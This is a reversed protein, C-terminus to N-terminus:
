EPLLGRRRMEDRVDDRRLRLERATSDEGGGGLWQNTRVGYGSSGGWSGFGFGIGVDGGASRTSNVLEDSLRQEYAVLQTNTMRLYDQELLTTTESPATSMCGTLAIVCLLLAFKCLFDTKHNM